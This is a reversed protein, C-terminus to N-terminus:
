TTVLVGGVLADALSVIIVVYQYQSLTTDIFSKFPNNPICSAIM